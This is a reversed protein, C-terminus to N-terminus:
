MGRSILIEFVESELKMANSTLVSRRRHLRTVVTKVSISRENSM